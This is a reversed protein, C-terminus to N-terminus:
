CQLTEAELAEDTCCTCEHVKMFCFFVCMLSGCGGVCQPKVQRPQFLVCVCLCVCVCVCM